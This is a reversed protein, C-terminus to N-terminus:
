RVEPGGWTLSVQAWVGHDSGFETSHDYNYQLRLRLSRAANAYWTVGPSFRFRGPQTTDGNGAVYEGRMGLEVNCPLGYLASLYCGFDQQTAPHPSLGLEDEVKYQNWM